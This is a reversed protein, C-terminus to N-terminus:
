TSIPQGSNNLKDLKPNPRTALDLVTKVCAFQDRMAGRWWAMTHQRASDDGVGNADIGLTRCTAVARVLHYSQTVIILQSLNFIRTARLCSEYTDFGGADVIVNETPVGARILYNRMAAPEDFEPALNDGSVIIMEVVGADYLRKALDLRAALFSSPTGDPNVQAGLVLAVRAAPVDFETYIHGAAVSRVFRVSGAM